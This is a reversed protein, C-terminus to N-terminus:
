AVEGVLVDVAADFTPVIVSSHFRLWPSISAGVPVVCIIRKRLIFAYVIEMATGWSARVCNVILARSRLIDWLDRWVIQRVCKDERGRYDRRMPDLDTWACTPCALRVKVHERWDRCDTDSLGNIGGCLYVAWRGRLVRYLWAFPIM